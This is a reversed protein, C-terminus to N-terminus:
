FPRIGVRSHLYGYKATRIAGASTRARIYMRHHDRVKERGVKRTSTLSVVWVKHEKDAWFEEANFTMSVGPAGTITRLPEDAPMSRSNSSNAHETIIPALVPECLGHADHAATITCMPDRVDQGRFNAGQHNCTVIFPEVQADVVGYKMGEAMITGLPDHLSYERRSGSDGHALSVIYPEAAEIVYKMLDGLLTNEAIEIHSM